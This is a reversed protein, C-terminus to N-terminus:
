VTFLVIIKWQFGDRLKGLRGDLSLAERSRREFHRGTTVFILTKEGTVRSYVRRLVTNIGALLNKDFTSLAQIQM